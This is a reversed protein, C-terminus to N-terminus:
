LRGSWDLTKQASNDGYRRTIMVELRVESGGSMEQSRIPLRGLALTFRNHDRVILDPAVPGEYAVRYRRGNDNSVSYRVEFQTELEDSLQGQDIVNVEFDQSSGTVQGIGLRTVDAVPVIGDVRYTTLAEQEIQSGLIWYSEPFGIEIEGNPQLALNLSDTFRSASQSAQWDIAFRREIHGKYSEYEDQIKSGPALLASAGTHSEWLNRSLAVPQEALRNLAVSQQPMEDPLPAPQNVLRLTGTSGSAGESGSSGNQGDSGDTCSYNETSCSGDQCVEVSWSKVDCDCGPSGFGGRGGRGGRGGSADVLVQALHKPDSYHVTLSGGNGGNGGNGGDGGNAGNEAQVNQRAYGSRDDCHSRGAGEGDTADEGDGGALDLQVPSGDVTIATSDGAEGSRGSYGNGSVQAYLGDARASVDIGQAKSQAAFAALNAWTASRCPAVMPAAASGLVALTSATLTMSTLRTLNSSFFSIM